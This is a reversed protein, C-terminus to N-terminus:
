EPSSDRFLLAYIADVQATSPSAPLKDVQKRLKKVVSASCGTKAAYDMFYRKLFEGRNVQRCVRYKGGTIAELSLPVYVNEFGDFNHMGEGTPFSTSVPNPKTGWKTLTEEYFVAINDDAQLELSSYASATHSVQFFGDWCTAFAAPDYMDGVDALEKYFIGVNQRGKGTPLSQLAMYMPVSDAVRVVPVVLLEGNTPSASPSAALGSMTALTQKGWIGNGHRTDTYTYINFLRGGSTRSSVVVRGDPLEDCKPEDGDPVPLADSGGLVKWTRGFDDSYVVRNGGPRAALAAYIRYYDGEKVLRSQFIRGGGVFAAEVPKGSDFLSYIAETQNEPQRWTKGGDLSRISAIINPNSRTTSASTYLTCGGVAMILAENRERDFVIAPDGYAAEMPTKVNNILSANGVAAEIECNSWTLGNDTSLKVVCDVQGFGPDTGCVLRAASAILCGNNGCSIGPIRYPPIDISGALTSFLTTRSRQQPQRCRYEKTGSEVSTAILCLFSAALLYKVIRM